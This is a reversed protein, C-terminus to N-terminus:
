FRAQRNDKRNDKFSVPTYTPEQTSSDIEYTPEPKPAPRYSNYSSASVGRTVGRPLSSSRGTTTPRSGSPKPNTYTRKSPRSATKRLDVQSFIRDGAVSLTGIILVRTLWVMVAVFIPVVKILTAREVVATGLSQHNLLAISVGWWTLM